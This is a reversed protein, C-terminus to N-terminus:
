VLMTLFRVGLLHRKESVYATIIQIETLMGSM